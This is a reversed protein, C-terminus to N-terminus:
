ALQASTPVDAPVDMTTDHDAARQRVVGEVGIERLQMALFSGINVLTVTVHARAGVDQGALLAAMGAGDLMHVDGLDLLIVRPAWRVIAAHVAGPVQEPSQYAVVGAVTIIM